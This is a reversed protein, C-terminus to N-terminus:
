PTIILLDADIPEAGNAWARVADIFVNMQNKEDVTGVRMLNLQKWEPYAAVIHKNAKKNVIELAAAAKLNDITVQGIGSVALLEAETFNVYQKGNHILTFRQELM